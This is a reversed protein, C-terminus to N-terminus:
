NFIHFIAQSYILIIVSVIAQIFPLVMDSLSALTLESFGESIKRIVIPNIPIIHNIWEGNSVFILM